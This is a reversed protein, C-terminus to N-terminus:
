FVSVNLGWFAFVLFLLFVFSQIPRLEFEALMMVWCQCRLQTLNTFVQKRSYPCFSM